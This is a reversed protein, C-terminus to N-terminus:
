VPVDWFRVTNDGGGSVLHRGDATFALAFVPGTHRDLPKGRPAGAEVDVLRIGDPFAAALLKGDPSLAISLPERRSNWSRRPRDLEGSHYFDVVDPRAVALVWAGRAFAAGPGVEVGPTHLSTVLSGDVDWVAVRRTLKLTGPRGQGPSVAAALTRNDPAFAIQRIPATGGNLDRLHKAGGPSVRWLRVVPQDRETAWWNLAAAFLTGDPSFEVAGVPGGADLGPWALERGEGLHWVIVRGASESAAALLRGDPSFAVGDCPAGRWRWWVPESSVSRRDFLKVGGGDTGGGLGVAVWRSDNSVALARTALGLDWVTGDEIPPM